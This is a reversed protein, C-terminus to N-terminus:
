KGSSIILKNEEKKITLHEGNEVLNDVLIPYHFNFGYPNVTFENETIERCVSKENCGELVGESGFRNNKIQELLNSSFYCLCVCNKLNNEKCYNPKLEEAEIAGFTITEAIAYIGKKHPWGTLAWGSPYLLIFDKTEGQKISNIENILNDMQKDARKLDNNSSFIGWLGWLLLLLISIGLVAIISGYVNDQLINSGKKNMKFMQMNVM